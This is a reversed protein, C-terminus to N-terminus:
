KQTGFVNTRAVIHGGVAPLVDLRPLPEFGPRVVLAAYSSGTHTWTSWTNGPGIAHSVYAAPQIFWLDAARAYIVIRCDPTVEGSVSGGIDARTDSGGEPEYPPVNTIQIQVAPLREKKSESAPLPTPEKVLKVDLESQAVRKDNRWVELSVRDKTSGDAFKFLTAPWDTEQPDCEGAVSVWKYHLGPQSGAVQARIELRRMEPGPPTRAQLKVRVVDGDGCGGVLLALTAPVLAALCGMGFTRSKVM